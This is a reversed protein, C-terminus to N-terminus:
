DKQLVFRYYVLLGDRLDTHIKSGTVGAFESFTKQFWKSIYKRIRENKGAEEHEIAKVVNKSIDEETLLEMGSHLLNNRLLKMGDPSRMDTCLFYGGPKLVRKVESLFVPVSGYAHCSEVNIIADFSDNNFPIKEANGQIFYLGEAKHSNRSLKIANHAIDMGVMKRPRHYRKLYNAGGGRGSGVELVELGNLEIRSALYHYLQIPYRNIEDPKNLELLPEYEFPMYGYNMFYWDEIKLRKALTEYIPKWIIRRFLPYDTLSLFIKAIM